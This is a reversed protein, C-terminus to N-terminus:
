FLNQNAYVKSNSPVSPITILNQKQEGCGKGWEKIIQNVSLFHRLFVSGLSIARVAPLNSFKRKGSNLIESKKLILKRVDKVSYCSSWIIPTQVAYELEEAMKWNFPQIIKGSLAGGGFRKLPSLDSAFVLDWPVSNLSIAQAIGQIKQAIKLYDQAYSLKILLPYHSVCSLIGFLKVILETNYFQSKEETVNPCSANYELAIFDFPNLTKAMKVLEKENYSAISVILQDSKKVKPAYYECYAELGMNGLAIANVVGGKVLRVSKLPHNSKRPEYTITKGVKTIATFDVARKSKIKKLFYNFIKQHPWGRGDFGLAGSAAIVDFSYGNSLTIM